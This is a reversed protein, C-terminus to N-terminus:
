PQRHGEEPPEPGRQVRAPDVAKPFNGQLVDTLDEFLHPDFGSRRPQVVPKRLGKARGHNRASQVIGYASLGVRDAAEAERGDVYIDWCAEEHLRALGDIVEKRAEALQELRDVPDYLLDIRKIVEALYIRWSM